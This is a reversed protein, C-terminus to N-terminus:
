YKFLLASRLSLFLKALCVPDPTALRYEIVIAFGGTSRARLRIAMLEGELSQDALLSDLKRHCHGLYVEAPRQGGRMILHPM